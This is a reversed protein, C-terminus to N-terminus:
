TRVSTAMAVALPALVMVPIFAGLAAPLGPIAASSGVVGGMIGLIALPACKVTQSVMNVPSRALFLPMCILLALLNTALNAVRGYRIRELGERSARLREGEGADGAERAQGEMVRAREVLAGIQRWSLNRSLGEFSRVTLETPDLKSDLREIPAPPQPPGRREHVVGEEFVWAGDDGGEWRARKATIARTALGDAGRELIYVNEILKEDADFKEAFYLRGAGDSTLPVARGALDHRGADGHDRTLLPAVRPLIFEDNVFQVALFGLSVVVIPRAARYLGLGGALMAGLERHRAMQSLTFGMAGVLVLGVMYNFLQFLQPWWLDAIIMVTVLGVRLFTPDQGRAEALERAIAIFRDINLIIDITVVFTFLIVLLNVANILFQRAIYRDLIGMNM